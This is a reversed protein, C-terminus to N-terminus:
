GGKKLFTKEIDEINQEAERKLSEDPNCVLADKFADVSEKYKGQFYLVRGVQMRANNVKDSDPFEKILQNYWILSQEYDNSGCCCFGKLYCYSDPPLSERAEEVALDAAEYDGEELLVYVGMEKTRSTSRLGYKDNSYGSAVSGHLTEAYAFAGKDAYRQAIEYLRRSLQKHGAFDKTLQSIVADASEYEGKAILEYVKLKALQLLAYKAYEDEESNIAVILECIKKSYDFEKYKDYRNAIEWLRRSLQKHHAFNNIMDFAVSFASAYSGEDILKYVRLKALQLSAYSAYEDKPYDAVIQKCLDKSYEFAAQENYRTAIKDYRNAIEFLRRALDKNRAFDATMQKINKDASKYSRIDILEYINLKALQLAAFKGYEHKPFEAAIEANLEKAKQFAEAKEYNYAIACLQEPLDPNNKFDNKLQKIGADASIFNGSKISYLIRDRALELNESIKAFCLPSLFSILFLLVFLFSIAKRL